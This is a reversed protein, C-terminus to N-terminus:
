RKQYTFHYPIIKFSTARQDIFHTSIMWWDIMRQKNFSKPFIRWKISRQNIFHTHIKRWDTIRQDIYHITPFWELISSIFVLWEQISREKVIFQTSIMEWDIKKENQESFHMSFKECVIMKQYTFSYPINRLNTARQDTFTPFIKWWGIM